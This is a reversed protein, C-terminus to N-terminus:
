ELHCDMICVDIQEGGGSVMTKRKEFRIEMGYRVSTKDVKQSHVTQDKPSGHLLDIDDAFRLNNIVRGSITLPSELEVLSEAMINELYINCLMPSLLCGQRVGVSTPFFESFDEGVRVM